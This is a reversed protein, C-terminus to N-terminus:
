QKLVVYVTRLGTAEVRPSVRLAYRQPQDERVGVQEIQGMAMYQMNEPWSRDSLMVLDGIEPRSTAVDVGMIQMQNSGIGELLCPKPTVRQTARVIEAGVKMQPDSLLRVTSEKPGAEEVRGIVTVQQLPMIVAMGRKLGDMTGKDLRLLRAGPGAGQGVVTAALVDKETLGRPLLRDLAQSKANADDLQMSLQAVQAELARVRAALAERSEQTDAQLAVREVAMRALGQIGTFIYQPPVLLLTFPRSFGSQV